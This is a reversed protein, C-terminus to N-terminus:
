DWRGQMYGAQDWRHLLQRLVRDAGGSDRPLHPPPDQLQQLRQL